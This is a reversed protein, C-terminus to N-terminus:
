LNQILTRIYGAKTNQPLKVAIGGPYHIEIMESVPEGPLHKVSVPIFRGTKKIDTASGQIKKRWGRFTYYSLNQEKCFRQMSQGSEAWQNVYGSMKEKRSLENISEM